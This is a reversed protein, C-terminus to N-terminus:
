REMFVSFMSHTNDISTSIHSKVLMVSMIENAPHGLIHHWVSSKVLQEVFVSSFNDQLYLFRFCSNADVREKTCSRGQWRIMCLPILTMMFLGAITIEVCNNCM